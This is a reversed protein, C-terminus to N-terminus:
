PGARSVPQTDVRYVDYGPSTEEPAVRRLGHPALGEVWQPTVFGPFGYTQRLRGIEPWCFVVDSVARTRLWAVVEAPPAGAAFELWPDRSFVVTYRVPRLIYYARAEGVLWVDAEPRTAANVPNVLLMIDTRGLMALMPVRTERWHSGAREALLGAPILGQLAAGASAATTLGAALARGAGARPSGAVVSRHRGGAPGTGCREGLLGAALALPALLPMAFRGPMHTLGAWLLLLLVVWLALFASSRDRRLAVAAIGALWPTLGFYSWSWGREAPHGLLERLAVAARAAASRHEPPPQHGRAWQEDQAPSWDRGGLYSYAFPYVPNGTFLTNRVAWPAFAVAVGAAFTLALRMRLASPERAVFIWAIPAAASVLALAPYKCAGALGACLGAALMAAVPRPGAGRVADLLLGGAVAAFLLVGNEVYALPGVYALWPAGGAVLVALLRPPGSPAWAACALVFAAGLGVHLLQAPIAAAHPDNLLHMLLYYLIEVQQPFSAYVNHPLFHIRRADFYERPAQLHYELVDYGRGEGDWILGPPLCAALLAVTLPIALPLLALSPAIAGTLRLESAQSSAPV